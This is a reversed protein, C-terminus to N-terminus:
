DYYQDGVDRGLNCTYRWEVTDGDELTYKSCGYNPYWGNVCYMWGSDKGCDFEYLNNIGSVYYSNYMPTWESEMQIGAENCVRKLVDFVTEGEYFEVESPYLIWGDAPVFEAKSEKLDNWNNLITSCEISFTCTMATDEDSSDGSGSTDGSSNDASSGDQGSTPNRDTDAQDSSSGTSKNDKSQTDEGKANDKTNDKTEDDAQDDAAEGTTSGGILYFDGGTKTVNFTLTTRKVKKKGSERTSIKATDLQYIKGNEELCYLVKDANWEEKLNLTLKAPAALNMKELTVKLAYPANNAAKKIEETGDETCQVLLKQEVPNQIQSGNYTWKYGIGSDTKGVFYFKEDYGLIILGEVNWRSAMDVVNDIKEGGILMVFYGNREAETQITGVLEGVFSDQLAQMGHTVAFGLVVGIIRSGHGSLMVSGMHPVYNQEKLIRTIKDITEQSVRKTNGNIVNSVTTRSVGAMDAIDQLRIM